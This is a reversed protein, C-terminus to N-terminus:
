GVGEGGDVWIGKEGEDKRGLILGVHADGLRLGDGKYREEKKGERRGKKGREMM